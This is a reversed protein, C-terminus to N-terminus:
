KLYNILLLTITLLSTSTSIVFSITPLNLSFIKRSEPEVIIVDNPLLYYAESTLLKKDQLNVSFTKTGGKLSRVVIIKDKRGYDDVGGAHGIADLVTLYNNYNIYTGPSKIEGIVTYKFSLFKCEVLANKYSKGFAEQLINRTEDLTKGEVQVAGIVPLLINGDVKVDYGYLYGGTEGQTTNSGSITASGELYDEIKGDPTMSKVTIYLIDRPQIKYDPIEMRFSEEGTPEPLNNLYAFKKQSTCGSGLLLIAALVLPIQKM